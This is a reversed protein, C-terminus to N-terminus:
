PRPSLHEHVCVWGHDRRHMVITEREHVEEEAGSVSVVTDVSHSFVAMDGFLQIRRDFSHCSLVRFRDESVWQEWLAEYEARSELRAPATYFLFTADAAFGAFYEDVRDHGFDDIIADVAELADREADSDTDSTM